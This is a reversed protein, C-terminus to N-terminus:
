GKCVPLVCGFCAAIGLSREQPTMGFYESFTVEQLTMCSAILTPPKHSNGELDEDLEALTQHLHGTIFLDEDDNPPM